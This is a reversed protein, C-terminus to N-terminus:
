CVVCVVRGVVLMRVVGVYTRCVCVGVGGAVSVVGDVGVDGIVGLRRYCRCCRCYGFM